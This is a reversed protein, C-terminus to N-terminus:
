HAHGHAPIAGSSASLKIDWAGLTVVREGLSLGEIVQVHERDQVGLTLVRREFAEGEVQVYAVPRGAEEIVAMRPIALCRVPKGLALQVRAARGVQLTQAPNPLAFTVAVTRTQPDVLPSVPLLRGRLAAVDMPKAEGELQFWATDVLGIKGLDAEFVRAQLWVESPDVVRLLLQGAEVQAGTVASFEVVIGGIPARVEYGATAAQALATAGSRFQALRAKAGQLRAKATDVRGAADDAERQAVAREALLGRLRASQREAVRLEVEAGQLEAELTPLVGEALRPAISGLLQGATVTSGVTLPADGPSKAAVMRLQGAVPAAVIAQLHPPAVLSGAVALSAQLEREAVPENAFATKWAQEKLYVIRGPPDDEPTGLAKQAAKADAYVECPGADLTDVLQPGSIRLVLRCKGATKPTLEPRFIGPSSSKGAMATLTGGQAMEVALTVTAETLAKFSAGSGAPPLITLHAAFRAPHGVQLPQHEMFLESRESWLTVSQGPLEPESSAGPVATAAPDRCAALATLLALLVGLARAHSLPTAPTM